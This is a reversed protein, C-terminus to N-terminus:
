CYPLIGARLASLAARLMVAVKKINGPCGYAYTSRSHYHVASIANIVYGTRQRYSFFGYYFAVLFCDGYQM